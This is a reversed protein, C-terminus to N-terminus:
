KVIADVDQRTSFGNLEVALQFRWRCSKALCACYNRGAATGWFTKEIVLFETNKFSTRLPNHLGNLLYVIRANCPASMSGEMIWKFGRINNWTFNGNKQCAMWSFSHWKLALEYHLYDIKIMGFFHRSKLSELGFLHDIKWKKRAFAKGFNQM